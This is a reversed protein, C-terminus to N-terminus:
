RFRQELISFLDFFTAENQSAVISEFQAHIGDPSGSSVPSGIDDCLIRAFAKVFRNEDVFLANTFDQLDLSILCYEEPVARTM